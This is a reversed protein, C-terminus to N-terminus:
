SSAGLAQAQEQQLLWSLALSGFGVGSNQLFQRRSVANAANSNM